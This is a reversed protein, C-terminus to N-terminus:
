KAAGRALAAAEGRTRVSLKALVSSVHHDVTKPSIHLREGIRANSLGEALCDLIGQERPTLGFANHHTALRPGRPIRRQGSDRLRRRLAAAVPLAGLRDFIELAALQAGADGTSLARAQEYPCGRREWAAAAGAWDGALHLRWPEAIWDPVRV